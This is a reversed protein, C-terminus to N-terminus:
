DSMNFRMRCEFCRNLLDELSKDRDIKYNQEEESLYDISFTPLPSKHNYGRNIMEVVLISHREKISKPEICNNEIYKTISRQKNLAGVIKHLEFHEGLLHKRCLIKPNCM